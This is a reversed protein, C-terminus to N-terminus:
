GTVFEAESYGQYFLATTLDGYRIQAGAAAATKPKAHFAVGLGAAQLMPIDNAGDGMALADKADISRETLVTKLRALKADAGLIPQVVRGTLAGDAIELTNGHAEDFGAARAVRDTFFTFGGSVLVTHAGNARMTAALTAAGPTLRVREDYARHLQEVTLGKLKAVRETLAQEFNLEGRMARETVASIEDRIGMFDALEDICEITIITSDMDAILLKKRRGDSPLVAHDIPAEGLAGAIAANLGQDADAKEVPLEVARHPSLWNPMGPTFGKAEVADRVLRVKDADLAPGDAPSVLVIVCKM